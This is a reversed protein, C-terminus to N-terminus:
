NLEQRVEGSKKQRLIRATLTMASRPERQPKMTELSKLAERIDDPHIHLTRRLYNFGGNRSQYTV